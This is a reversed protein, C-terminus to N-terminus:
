FVDEKTLNISENLIMREKLKRIKKRRRKDRMIMKIKKFINGKERKEKEPNIGMGEMFSDYQMKTTALYSLILVWGCILNFIVMIRYFMVGDGFFATYLAMITLGILLLFQSFMASELQTRMDLKGLTRSIKQGFVYPYKEKPKDQEEQEKPFVEQNSQSM